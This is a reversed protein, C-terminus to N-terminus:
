VNKVSEKQREEYKWQIMMKVYSDQSKECVRQFGWKSFWQNLIYLLKDYSLSSSYSTSNVTLIQVQLLSNM